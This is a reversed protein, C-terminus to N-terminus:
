CGPGLTASCGTARAPTTSRFVSALVHCGVPCMPGGTTLDVPFSWLGGGGHMSPVGWVHKTRSSGAERGRGACTRTRTVEGMGLVCRHLRRLQCVMQDIRSELVESEEALQERAALQEMLGVSLLDIDEKLALLVEELAGPPLTMLAQKNWLSSSPAKQLAEM